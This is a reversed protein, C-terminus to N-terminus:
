AAEVPHREVGKAANRVATLATQGKSVWLRSPMLETTCTMHRLAGCMPGASKFALSPILFFMSMDARAKASRSGATECYMFSLELINDSRKM